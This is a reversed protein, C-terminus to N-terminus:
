NFVKKRFNLEKYDRLILVHSKKKNIKLMKEM